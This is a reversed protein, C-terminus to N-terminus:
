FGRDYKSPMFCIALLIDLLAQFQFFFFFKLNQGTKWEARIKAYRRDESPDNILRVILMLGLRMAWLIAMGLLVAKRFGWGPLGNFYIIATLAFGFTWGIDVWSANTTKVQVWWLLLMLVAAVGWAMLTVQFVQEM